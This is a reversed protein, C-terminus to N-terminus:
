GPVSTEARFDSVSYGTFASAITDPTEDKVGLRYVKSLNEITIAPRPM